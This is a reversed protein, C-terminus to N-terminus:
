AALVAHALSTMGDRELTFAVRGRTPRGCCRRTGARDRDDPVSSGALAPLHRRGSVGGGDAGAGHTDDAAAGSRHGAPACAAPVRRCHRSQRLGGRLWRGRLVSAAVLLWPDTLVGYCALSLAFVAGGGLFMAGPGVRQHWWGVSRMFPIETLAGVVSAAAVASVGGGLATLRLPLVTMSGGMAVGFLWAGALLLVFRAGLVDRWGAQAAVRPRVPARLGRVAAVELLLVAPYALLVLTLSTRALLVGWGAVAVAFGASSWLRISGYRRRASRGLLGVALADALAEGPARMAALLAASVLVAPLWGGACLLVVSAVAAAFCSLRLAQQAGHRRDAWAGWVPVAVVGVAAMLGLVLGVGSPSLGRWALYLALYPMLTGIGGGSAAFVVKLRRLADPRGPM